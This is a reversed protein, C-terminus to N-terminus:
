WSTTTVMPDRVAIRGSADMLYAGDMPDLDSHTPTGHTLTVMPDRGHQGKGSAPVGPRASDDM